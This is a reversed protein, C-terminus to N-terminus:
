GARSAAIPPKRPKAIWSSYLAIMQKYTLCEKGQRQNVSNHARVLWRCLTERSRLSNMGLKCKSHHILRTYHQRCSRCPLVHKLGVLFDYYRKRCLPAPNEPYGMAIAHLSKWLHPGWLRPKINVQRTLLRQNSSTIPKM